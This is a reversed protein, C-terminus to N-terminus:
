DTTTLSVRCATYASNGVELPYPQGVSTIGHDVLPVLAAELLADLSDAQKDNDGPAVLLIVEHRITWSGVAFGATANPELYPDGPQVLALPPNLRNPLYPYARAGLPALVADLAAAITDRMDRLETM